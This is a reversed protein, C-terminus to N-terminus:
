VVDWGKNWAIALDTESLKAINTNGISIVWETGSTDGTKDQLANLISLLSEVTLNTSWQVSFGNRGIIGEIKIDTLSACNQFPTRYTDASRCVLSDISILNRCESFVNNFGSSNVGNYKKTIRPLHTIASGYFTHNLHYLESLDIIVGCENLRKKLDTIKSNRFMYSDYQLASPTINYKPYFTDDTWGPGQFSYNYMTREGNQQFVDWFADYEAKKGDTFGQDYGGDGSQAGAAYGADYVKQENEAIISLKEAISM